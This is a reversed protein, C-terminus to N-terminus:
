KILKWNCGNKEIIDGSRIVTYNQHTENLEKAGIAPFQPPPSSPPPSPPQPPLPSSDSQDLYPLHIIQPPHDKENCM